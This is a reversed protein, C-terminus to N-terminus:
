LEGSDAFSYYKDNGIIIHDLVTIDLYGAAEKIKKTLSIDERSPNINGSPHNHSLIIGTANEELAKKLIVRPDAVTGTIGGTSVIHHGNIRNARNLFVVVFVERHEDQLISRLYEAVHSSTAMAPKVLSEAAQRRRGLELAAAITVAKAPGIGGVKQLDKVTLRGLENLNDKGLKLIDKALDIASRNRTGNNILIAILESNSLSAPSKQLLKERPRDDEAWNKISNPLPPLNEM